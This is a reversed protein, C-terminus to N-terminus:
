VRYILSADFSINDGDFMIRRSIPQALSKDAGKYYRYPTM